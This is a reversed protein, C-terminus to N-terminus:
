PNVRFWIEMRNNGLCLELLVLVEDVCLADLVLAHAAGGNDDLITINTNRPSSLLLLKIIIVRLPSVRLTNSVSGDSRLFL